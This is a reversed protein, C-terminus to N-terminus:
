TAPSNVHTTIKDLVAKVLDKFPKQTGPLNCIMPEPLGAARRLLQESETEAGQMLSAVATVGNEDVSAGFPTFWDDPSMPAHVELKNFMKSAGDTMIWAECLLLMAMVSVESQQSRQLEENIDFLPTRGAPMQSRGPETERLRERYRCVVRFMKQLGTEPADRRIAGPYMQVRHEPFGPLATTTVDRTWVAALSRSIGDGSYCIVLPATEQRASDMLAQRFSKIRREGDNAERHNAQTVAVLFDPCDLEDDYETHTHVFVVDIERLLQHQPELEAVFVATSLVRRWAEVRSSTTDVIYYNM